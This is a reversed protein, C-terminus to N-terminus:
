KVVKFNETLSLTRGSIKDKVNATIKYNGVPDTTSFGINVSARGLQVLGARPPAETWIPYEGTSTKEGNPDELTFISIVDCVGMTNPKCGHFILMAAASSGVHITDTSRLNPTGNTTDWSHRFQKEDPTLVLHVGFDGDSRMNKINQVSKGDPSVWASEAILPFFIVVLWLIYKM